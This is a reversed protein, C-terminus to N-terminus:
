QGMYLQLSSLKELMRAPAHLEIYLLMRRLTANTNTGAMKTLYHIADNLLQSTTHSVLEPLLHHAQPSANKLDGLLLQTSLRDGLVAEIERVRDPDTYLNYHRGERKLGHYLDNFLFNERHPADPLEPRPSKAGTTYEQTANIFSAESAPWWPTLRSPSYTDLRHVKTPTKILRQAISRASLPVRVGYLREFTAIEAVIAPLQGASSDLIRPIPAMQVVLGRPERTHPFVGLGGLTRPTHVLSVVEALAIPHKIRYFTDYLDEYLMTYPTNPHGTLHPARSYFKLWNSVKMELQERPGLSLGSEFPNASFITPILRCVYGNWGTAHYKKRLFESFEWAVLDVKPNITYNVMIYFLRFAVLTVFHSTFSQSDDGIGLLALLAPLWPWLATLYKRAAHQQTINYMTNFFQTLRWGSANGQVLQLILDGYTVTGTSVSLYVLESLLQWDRSTLGEMKRLADLVKCHSAIISRDQQAECSKLDNCNAFLHGQRIKEVTDVQAAIQELTNMYLPTNPHFFKSHSVQEALVHQKLYGQTDAAVIARNRNREHKIEVKVEPVKHEVLWSYLVHPPTTAVQTNKTKLARVPGQSTDLTPATGRMSGSTGARSPHTLIDLPQPNAEPTRRLKFGAIVSQSATSYLQEHATKSGLLSHPWEKPFWSELQELMQTQPPTPLTNINLVFDVYLHWSECFYEHHQKIASSAWKLFVSADGLTHCMGLLREYFVAVDPITARLLTLAQNFPGFGFVTPLLRFRSTGMLHPPPAFARLPLRLYDEQQHTFGLFSEYPVAFFTSLENDALEVGEQLQALRYCYYFFARKKHRNGHTKASPWTDNLKKNDLHLLLLERVTRQYDPAPVHRYPFKHALRRLAARNDTGRQQRVEDNSTPYLSTDTNVIYCRHQLHRPVQYPHHALLVTSNSTTAWQEIASSFIYNVTKWDGARAANEKALTGEATLITDIDTYLTPDTQALTTKGSLPPSCVVFIDELMKLADRQKVLFTRTNEVEETTLSRRPPVVPQNEHLGVVFQLPHPAWRQFFTTQQACEYQERPTSTSTAEYFAALHPMFEAM